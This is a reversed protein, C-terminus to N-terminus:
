PRLWGRRPQLRDVVIPGQLGSRLRGAGPCYRTAKDTVWALLGGVGLTSSGGFLKGAWGKVQDTIAITESGQERLDKATANARIESVEVPQACSRRSCSTM